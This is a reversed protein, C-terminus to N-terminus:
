ASECAKKRKYSHHSPHMRKEGRIVAAFSPPSRAFPLRLPYRRRHSFLFFLPGFSDWPVLPPATQPAKRVPSSSWVHPRKMATTEVRKRKEEEVGKRERATARRRKRSRSHYELVRYLTTWRLPNWGFIASGGGGRKVETWSSQFAKRPGKSHKMAAM